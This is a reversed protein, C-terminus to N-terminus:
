QPRPERRTRRRVVTDTDGLYAARVAPDGRVEAPTGTALVRGAALVTVRDAARGVVGMDHEVLLVGHGAAALGRLVGVLGARDPRSMGAAPEDLLLAPAGTAV